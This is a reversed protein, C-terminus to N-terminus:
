ELMSQCRSRWSKSTRRQSLDIDCDLGNDLGFLWWDFPLKLAFYSKSQPLYWGGLYSRFVIYRLFCALGDFWDHNGPVAYAMPPQSHRGNTFAEKHSSSEKNVIARAEAQSSHSRPPPMADEMVRVFRSEYNEQTPRPYALDGGIILVEGRPLTTSGQASTSSALSLHPQALLRAVSFSSDFGDGCDAMFDLWMEKDGRGASHDHFYPDAATGVVQAAEKGAARRGALAETAMMQRMDFRGSFINFHIFADMATQIFAYEYWVAMPKKDLPRHRIVANLVNASLGEAESDEGESGSRYNVEPFGKPPSALRKERAVLSEYADDDWFLGRVDSTREMWHHVVMISICSLWVGFHESTLWAPITDQTLNLGGYGSLFWSCSAMYESMANHYFAKQRSFSGRLMVDRWAESWRLSGPLAASEAAVM